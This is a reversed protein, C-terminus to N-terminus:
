PSVLSRVRDRVRAAISTDLAPPDLEAWARDATELTSRWGSGTEDEPSLGHRALALLYLDRADERQRLPAAAQPWSRERLAFARGLLEIAEAHRGQLLRASAEASLCLPVPSGDVRAESGAYRALNEALGVLYAREGTADARLSEPPFTMILLSALGLERPSYIAVDYLDDLDDRARAAEGRELHVRASVLYAAALHTERTTAFQLHTRTKAERAHLLATATDGLALHLDALAVRTHADGPDLATARQLQAHALDHDGLRAWAQGAGSPINHSAGDSEALLREADEFHRLAERERGLVLDIQGLSTPVLHYGPGDHAALQLLEEARVLLDPRQYARGQFFLVRGLFVRGLTSDPRAELVQELHARAQEFLHRRGSKYLVDFMAVGRHLHALEHDEDLRLPTAEAAEPDSHEDLDRWVLAGGSAPDFPGALRLQERADQLLQEREPARRPDAALRLGLAGLLYRADGELPAEGRRAYGEAGDELFPVAAALDGRRIRDLAQLMAGSPDDPDAALCWPGPPGNREQGVWNMVLGLPAYHAEAAARLAREQRSIRSGLVALAILVLASVAGVLTPLRHRRAWKGARRLPGAPRALIAEGALLRRLDEAFADMSPYRAGPEKEIAKLCILALDRPIRPNLRRPDQPDASVIKRLVENTTEGDFPRALTLCEFLTVGLSFVDARDDLERRRGAAQEPSVYYPTGLFGGSDSKALADELSALGFDSVMPRGDATMLINSPKVDRHLVGSAHAHRLADAVDAIWGTATRLYGRPLDDARRLRELEDALTRGDGVLEQAIYHVGAAEGVALVSVIGPHHQRAGARAERHFKDVARSSLSLHAPLIKLAVRRGLTLQEAEYVRAMGGEGVLRLIRFDGVVPGTSPAPPEDGRELERFVERLRHEFVEFDLLEDGLLPAGARSDSTSGQERADRSEV